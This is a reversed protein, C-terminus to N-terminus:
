NWACFPLTRKQENEACEIGGLAKYTCMIITPSPNGMDSHWIIKTHISVPYSPCGVQNILLWALILM